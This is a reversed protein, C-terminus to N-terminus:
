QNSLYKFYQIYKTMYIWDSEKWENMGENLWDNMLKNKVKSPTM